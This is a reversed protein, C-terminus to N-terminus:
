GRKGNYRCLHKKILRGTESLDGNDATLKAADGNHADSPSYGVVDDDEEMIKIVQEWWPYM